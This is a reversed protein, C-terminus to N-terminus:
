GEMTGLASKAASKLAAATPKTGTLRTVIDGAADAAISEIDAEAKIRAKDLSDQAKAHAEALVADAKALKKEISLAAKDRASSVVARSKEQAEAIDAHYATDVQDAEDKAQAAHDIDGAVQAERAEVTRGLKPLTLQVIGFYLIVFFVALWAIQPIFNSFDFQPM